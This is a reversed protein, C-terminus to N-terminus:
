TACRDEKVLHMEEICRWVEWVDSERGSLEFKHLVPFGFRASLLDAAGAYRAGWNRNGSAVVGRIQHQNREAFHMVECPIQGFGTTYTILVCPEGVQEAGNQIRLTPVHRTEVLKQVFRAVNGTRSAYAILLVGRM